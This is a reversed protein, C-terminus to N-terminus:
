KLGFMKVALLFLNQAKFVAVPLGRTNKLKIKYKSVLNKFNPKAIGLEEAKKSIDLIQNNFQLGMKQEYITKLLHLDIGDDNKIIIKKDGIIKYIEEFAEHITQAEWSQKINNKVYKNVFKFKNNHLFVVAVQQIEIKSKLVTKVIYIAVCDKM